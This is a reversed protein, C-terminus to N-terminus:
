NAEIKNNIETTYGDDEKMLDDPPPEAKVHKSYDYTLLKVGIFGGSGKAGRHYLGAGSNLTAGKSNSAKSPLVHQVDIFPVTSQAADADFDSHTFEIYQDHNSDIFLNKNGRTPLDPKQLQLRSRPKPSGETNDNSIWQSKEPFMRGTTYNFPTSQIEFHLHAGIMRFRVGTLVSGSPSELEDLDIARREYTLKHYDVGDAVGSNSPDFAVVKVEESSEVFGREVLTGQHIQLHFVRGVKVLRVGTVVKNNAVDSVTPRLSFYRHSSFSPDDCLCMCYSCHWFLWRWWSDVKTTGRHCTGAKGLVRGNEYEIYEYRRSSQLSAPCVWMDSDVFQCDIIRGGCRPQKSCFQDKFCGENRALTYFACNEKCTGDTNMDVENEIYGQLLRTIEAYTDSNYHAPQCRYLDRKAMALAARAATATQGTREAYRQRTLSAEQTFNGRGYIRLLMWSFQMMAYGKIETLAITNYIDFILQHASLQLDCVDADEDKFHDVLIQFLGQGLLNKHPPVVISHIRELLGPLAGNDHSVCRSAFDELTSRELGTQIEVYERMKRNSWSVRSLLDSMEHLLLETRTARNGRKSIMQALQGVSQVSIELRDIARSVEGLKALIERERRHVYPLAVGATANFPEGIVDWSGVVEQGIEKGLQIIDVVDEVSIARTTAALALLALFSRVRRVSM